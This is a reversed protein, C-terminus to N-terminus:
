IWRRTNIKYEKYEEAFKNMLMKEEFNIYWRDVVITFFVVILLASLSGAFIAVGLLGLVFGLYMPNRSYIFLGDTVLVDPENFTPINTGIRKFQAKGKVAIFVGGAFIFIGILNFPYLILEALPFFYDAALLTFISIYFLKPPLLKKM